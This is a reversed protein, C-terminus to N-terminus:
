SIVMVRSVGITLVRDKRVSDYGSIFFHVCHTSQIANLYILNVIKKREKKRIAKEKETKMKKRTREKKREKKRKGM